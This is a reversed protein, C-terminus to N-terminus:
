APARRSITYGLVLLLVGSALFGLDWALWQDPPATENVHHLGILQHNVLGEVLNFLGFGMLAGGSLAAWSLRAGRLAGRWVLAIGLTTMIWTAAHFLGDLLTNMQLGEVTDVPVGASSAIHHWQLVQHLVIGDFFGGLGAGLLMAAGTPFRAPLLGAGRPPLGPTPDPYSM